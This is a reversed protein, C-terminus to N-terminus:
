PSNLPETLSQFVQRSPNSYAQHCPLCASHSDLPSPLPAAASPPLLFAQRPEPFGLLLQASPVPGSDQVWQPQHEAFIPSWPMTNFWDWKVALRGNIWWWLLFPAWSWSLRPAFESLDHACWFAGRILQSCRTGPSAQIGNKPSRPKLFLQGHVNSM